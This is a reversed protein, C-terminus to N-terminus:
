QLLSNGFKVGLLHKAYRAMPLTRSRSDFTLAEDLYQLDYAISDSNVDGELLETWITSLAGTRASEDTWDVLPTYVLPKQIFQMSVEAIKDDWANQDIVSVPNIAYYDEFAM